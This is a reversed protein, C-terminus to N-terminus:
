TEFKTLKNFDFGNIALLMCTNIYMLSNLKFNAPKVYFFFVAIFLQRKEKKNLTNKIQIKITFAPIFRIVMSNTSLGYM